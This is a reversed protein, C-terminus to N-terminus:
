KDVSSFRLIRRKQSIALDFPSRTFPESMAFIIPRGALHTLAKMLSSSKRSQRGFSSWGSAIRPFLFGENQLSLWGDPQSKKTPRRSSWAIRHFPAWRSRPSGMIVCLMCM